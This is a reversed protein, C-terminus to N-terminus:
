RIWKSCRPQVTDRDFDIWRAAGQEDDVHLAVEEFRASEAFHEAVIDRLEAAGDLRIATQKLGPARCAQGDNVSALSMAGIQCIKGGGLFDASAALCRDAVHTRHSADQNAALGAM